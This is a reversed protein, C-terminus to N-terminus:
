EPVYKLAKMNRNLRFSRLDYYKEKIWFQKIDVNHYMINSYQSQEAM